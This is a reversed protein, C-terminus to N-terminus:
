KAMSTDSYQKKDWWEIEFSKSLQTTMPPTQDLCAVNYM